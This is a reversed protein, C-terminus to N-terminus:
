IFDKRFYKGVNIFDNFFKDSKLVDNEVLLKLEAYSLEKKTRYFELIEKKFDDPNNKILEQLPKCSSDYDRWNSECTTKVKKSMRKDPLAAIAKKGLKKTRTSTLFKMGYYQKGTSLQTIKYTFGVYTLNSIETIPQNKYYWM